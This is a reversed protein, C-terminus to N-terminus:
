RSNATNSLVEVTGLNPVTIRGILDTIGLTEYGVDIANLQTVQEPIRFSFRVKSTIGPALETFIRRENRELENLQVRQAVYVNGNTDTVNTQYQEERAGFRIQRHTRGRNTVAVDCIVTTKARQCGRSEFSIGFRRDIQQAPVDQGQSIQPIQAVQPSALVLHTSSLEAGLILSLIGVKKSIKWVGNM